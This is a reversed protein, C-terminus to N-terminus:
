NPPPLTRSAARKVAERLEDPTFPKAVCDCAGKRKMENALEETASGTMIVVPLAPHTVQLRELVQTGSMGPMLQDLLLVDIKETGRGIEKLGEEGTKACVVTWGVKALVRVCADRIHQEDDIVLVRAM